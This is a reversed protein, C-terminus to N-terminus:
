PLKVLRASRTENAAELRLWYTGPAVARGAANRGDWELSSAAVGDALIRVLRGEVDYVKLRMLGPVAPLAIRTKEHFPNPSVQLRVPAPVAVSGEALGLTGPQLGEIVLDDVGGEVLTQTGYDSAVFRFQMTSTFPVDERRIERKLFQWSPLDDNVAAIPHWVVGGDNSLDIRLFDDGPQRSWLWVSFRLYTQTSLDFVPSLLTTKGTDVDGSSAPAGPGPNGTVFAQVGPAPTHDDEPAIVLPGSMTGFPDGRVWTGGTADDGPAGVTWASAAELEDVVVPAMTGVIFLLPDAAGGAPYFTDPGNVADAALYYRVYNGAAQAPIAGQWEDPNATPSLAQAQYAGGSISYHCTVGVISEPLLAPTVTALLPYPNTENTTDVLPTHTIRVRFMADLAQRLDPLRGIPRSLPPGQPTGYVALVGRVGLPDLTLGFMQQSLNQVVAACGTVIPSASSTGSFTGTYRQNIEPNFLGGYGTTAVSSGYGQCDIRTGSNTWCEPAHAGPTGAGVLIAGSDRVSRNFLGQYWPSDLNMSGNGGAEVVILGAAVHTQIADFNAQEWEM